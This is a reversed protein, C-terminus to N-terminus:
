NRSTKKAPANDPLRLGVQRMLPLVRDVFFPLEEEFNVFSVSCGTLGISKLHLLTQVIREPSGILPFSGWGGGAFRKREIRRIESEDEVAAFHNPPLSTAKKGGFVRNLVDRDAMEEAYYSYYQEAEADTERCVTHCAVLVGFRDRGAAAAAAHIDAIGKADAEDAWNLRTFLADAAKMAFKRGSPSFAASLVFPRDQILAPGGTVGKLHYFKGSYDFNASDRSIRSVIELWEAGQDYRDDGPVDHHGFMEFESQNWGCVINIGSRGGSVHDITALAKAAFVPHVLPAHVTTLIAINETISALSAGHTFTEFSEGRIDNDGGFGKWRAVPLLFDLGASDAIRATNAISDWSVRWRNPVTTVALGGDTNISFLGLKFPQDNWMPNAASKPM